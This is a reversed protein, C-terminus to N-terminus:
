TRKPVQAIQKFLWKLFVPEPDCQKSTMQTTGNNSGALM